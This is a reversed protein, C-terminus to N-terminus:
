SVRLAMIMNMIAWGPWALDTEKYNIERFDMKM